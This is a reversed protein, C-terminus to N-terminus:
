RRRLALFMVGLAGALLTLSSPEPVTSATLRVNDFDAQPGVSTLVITLDGAPVTAGSTFTVTEDAFEGIPIVGNSASFSNLLTTGAYLAITYNTLYGTPSTSADLRHGVDVTLVYTTDPIISSTLTQSITGGNSYAVISGDPLPLNIRAANPQWSGGDGTLAWGPIPGANFNCGTGCSSTLPNTIEFSANQIAVADAKAPAAFSSLTLVVLLLFLVTFKM